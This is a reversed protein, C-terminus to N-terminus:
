QGLQIAIGVHLAWVIGAAGGDPDVSQDTGFTMVSLTLAGELSARETLSNRAGAVGGAGFGDLAEDGYVAMYRSGSGRAWFFRPGARLLVSSVQHAWYAELYVSFVTIRPEAIDDSLSALSAGVRVENISKYPFGVFLQAGWGPGTFDFAEGSGAVVGVAGGPSQASAASPIVSLILLLLAIRM